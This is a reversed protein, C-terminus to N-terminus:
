VASHPKRGTVILWIALGAGIVVLAAVTWTRPDRAIRQLMDSQPPSTVRWVSVRRNGTDAVYFLGTGDGAVGTPLSMRGASDGDGGARARTAGSEDVLAVEGGTTDALVAGPPWGAPMAAIGRPLGSCAAAAVPRLADDLLVVRSNNSDTVAVRDGLVAIGNVYSLGLGGLAESSGVPSAAVLRGTPGFALVRGPQTADSVYMTGSAHFGIALPQWARTAAVAASDTPDPAFTGVRSGDLAFVLVARLTRDTVYLRGDHPGLAIYLPVSLDGGGFSGRYAGTASLIVIEGRSADAVYVRGGGVALGVPERLTNPGAPALDRVFRPARYDGAVQTSTGMSGPLLLAGAVGAVTLAVTIVAAARLRRARDEPGRARAHRGATRV